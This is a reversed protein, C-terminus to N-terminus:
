FIQIDIICTKDNLHQFVKLYGTIFIFLISWVAVKIFLIKGSSFCPTVSVVATCPLPMRLIALLAAFGEHMRESAEGRQGWRGNGEWQRPWNSIAPALAAASASCNLLVTGVPGGEDSLAVGLLYTM